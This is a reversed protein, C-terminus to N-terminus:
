SIAPTFTDSAALKKSVDACTQPYYTTGTSLYSKVRFM